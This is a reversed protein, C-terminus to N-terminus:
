YVLSGNTNLIEFPKWSSEVGILESSSSDLDESSDVEESSSRFEDSAFESIFFRPSKVTEKVVQRSTQLVLSYVIEIMDEPIQIQTEESWMGLSTGRIELISHHSTSLSADAIRPVGDKSYVWTNGTRILEIREAQKTIFNVSEGSNNLPLVLNLIESRYEFSTEGERLSNLYAERLPKIKADIPNTSPFTPKDLGLEARAEQVCPHDFIAELSIRQDEPVFIKNFLDVADDTIMMHKRKSKLMSMIPNSRLRQKHKDEELLYTGGTVSTFCQDVSGIQMYPMEQVLMCFLMVGLSWVDNARASYVEEQALNLRWDKACTKKGTVYCEPSMYRPTGVCDRCNMEERDWLGFRYAVGFDICKTNGNDDIVVNELEIDRHAIGMKHMDYTAKVQMLWEKVRIKQWPSPNFRKFEYPSEQQKLTNIWDHVFGKYSTTLTAFYDQGYEQYYNLSRPEELMCIGEYGIIYPCREPTDPQDTQHAYTIYQHTPVENQPNDKRRMGRRINNFVRKMDIQKCAIRTGDKKKMLTIPGFYSKGIDCIPTNPCDDDEPDQLMVYDADEVSRKDDLALLACHPGQMCLYNLNGYIELDDKNLDPSDHGIFSWWDQKLKRLARFAVNSECWDQAFSEIKDYTVRTFGYEEIRHAIVKEVKRNRYFYFQAYRPIALRTPMYKYLEGFMQYLLEDVQSESLDGELQLTKLLRPTKFHFYGKNNINRQTDLLYEKFVSISMGNQRLKTALNSNWALDFSQVSCNMSDAKAVTM